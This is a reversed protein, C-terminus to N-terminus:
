RFHVSTAFHQQTQRRFLQIPKSAFVPASRWSIRLWPTEHKGIKLGPVCGRPKRKVFFGRGLGVQPPAKPAM